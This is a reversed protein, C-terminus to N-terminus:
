NPENKKMGLSINKDQHTSQIINFLYDHICFYEHDSLPGDPEDPIGILTCGFMKDFQLKEQDIIFIKKTDEDYMALTVSKGSVHYAITPEKEQYEMKGM